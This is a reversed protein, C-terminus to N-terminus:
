LVGGLGAKCGRISRAHHETLPGANGAKQLYTRKLKRPKRNECDCAHVVTETTAFEERGELEKLPSSGSSGSMHKENRETSFEESEAPGETWQSVARHREAEETATGTSGFAM